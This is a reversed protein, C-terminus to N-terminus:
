LGATARKFWIQDTKELSKFVSKKDVSVDILIEGFNKLLIFKIKGERNKKDYIMIRFIDEKNINKIKISPQFKLPLELM